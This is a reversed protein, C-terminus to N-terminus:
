FELVPVSHEDFLFQNPKLSQLRDPETSAM